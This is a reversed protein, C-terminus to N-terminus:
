PTGQYFYNNEHGWKLWAAVAEKFTLNKGIQKEGTLERLAGFWFHPREKLELLILGIVPQGMNVIQRYSELAMANKASSLYQSESRWRNALERFTAEFADGESPQARTLIEPLRRKPREAKWCPSVFRAIQIPWEPLRRQSYDYMRVARAMTRGRER